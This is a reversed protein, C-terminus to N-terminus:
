VNIRANSSEVEGFVAHRSILIQVRVQLRLDVNPSVLGIHVGCATAIFLQVGRVLGTLCDVSM